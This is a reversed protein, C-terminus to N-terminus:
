RLLADKPELIMDLNSRLVALREILSFLRCSYSLAGAVIAQIAQTCFNSVTRDHSLPMSSVNPGVVDPSAPAVGTTTIRLLFFKVSEEVLAITHKQSM